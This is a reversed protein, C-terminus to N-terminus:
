TKVLARLADRWAELSPTVSEFKADGVAIEGLVCSLPYDSPIAGIRQMAAQTRQQQPSPAHESWEDEHKWFNAAHNIIEAVSLGSDHRPGARLAVDKRLKMWGTTASLYRQCAVFGLGAVSEFEALMGFQDPDYCGRAAETINALQADIVALHQRLFDLDFDCVADGNTLFM